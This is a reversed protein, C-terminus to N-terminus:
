LNPKPPEILIDSSSAALSAPPIFLRSREYSIAVQKQVETPATRIKGYAKVDGDFKHSSPYSEVTRVSDKLNKIFTDEFNPVLTHVHTLCLHFGNPNQMLDLKWGHKQNMEQAIAHPNLNKSQFGLVSWKPKGFVHIDYSEYLKKVRKELRQRLAIIDEAIQKFGSQSYHAMTVYLEAIRAASSSGDLAGPTAYFGGRWNLAAYVSLAPSNESFFLFSTGKPACGYKHTDASISSVGPVRFDMPNSSTDLFATLFGGLCADVHLPVKRDIALQGLEGIPDNIGYMFSPASGVIVATNRSIYKDMDSARVAGTAPDTPVVVLTAGTIKAAKIFAAHATDPVVIEPHAIHKARALLVYAIMAEIISTSGGHTILGYGEASGHFLNLGWHIVEARMASVRPSKERLPNNYACCDYVVKLLERLEKPPAAYLSGSEKGDGKQLIFDRATPEKELLEKFNFGCNEPTLDFEQLIEEVSLPNEPIHDRLRMGARQKKMKELDSKHQKSLEGNVYKEIYTKIVPVHRGLEYGSDLLHQTSSKEHRSRWSRMISPNQYQSILFFLATVYMVMQHPPTEEFTEDFKDLVNVLLMLLIEFYNM